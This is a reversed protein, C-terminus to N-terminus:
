FSLDADDIDDPNINQSVTKSKQADAQAGVSSSIWGGLKAFNDGFDWKADLSAGDVFEQLRQQFFTDTNGISVVYIKLSDLPGKKLLDNETQPNKGLLKDLATAIDAPTRYTTSSNDDGDTPIIIIGHTKIEEGKLQSAYDEMSHVMEMLADYLATVGDPRFPKYEDVNIDNIPLYGHIERVASQFATVRALMYEALPHNQLGKIANKLAILLNDAFPFTSYTEDIVIGAITYESEDLSEPRVSSYSYTGMSKNTQIEQDGGYIPM